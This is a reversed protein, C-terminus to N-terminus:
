STGRRLGRLAEKAANHGPAGSVGGGPHSGAGCLYLGKIPTKYGSCCPHPRMFFSQDLDLRGHYVDGGTLGYEQELDLPSLARYGVVADPLNPAYKGITKLILQAAEDRMKDDWVRGGSLTYPFHQAHVSAVHMGDPALTDDQTSPIVVTVLPEKPLEGVRTTEYNAEINAVSGEMLIFGEHQPGQPKGPLCTFDPLENLALNMRFAHAETRWQALDARLDAPVHEPELLNLFTLKPECNSLVTRAEFTEGSKLTVGTTREGEVEIRAVEADTRIDAGAERASAAIADSIAGMGGRVFAWGGRKGAIEGLSLHLLSIANGPKDLAYPTGLVATSYYLTRVADSEIYREVLGKVSGIFFRFLGQRDKSSLRWYSVGLRALTTLDDLRLRGDIINPPARLLLPRILDAIHDIMDELKNMGDWDTDSFKEVERQDNTEEGTLLMYRGDPKPCFSNTMPLFELGHRHLDLEKVVTPHLLSAVYSLSSNRFGPHFEETVAAGGVIGRRELVLASKGAKALYAAATLGNHGGGVIIADYDPM